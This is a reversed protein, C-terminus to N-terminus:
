SYGHKVSLEVDRAEVLGTALTQRDSGTLTTSEVNGTGADAWFLRDSEPDLAIGRPDILFLKM